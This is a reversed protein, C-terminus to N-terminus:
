RKIEQHRVPPNIPQEDQAEQQIPEVVGLPVGANAATESEAVLVVNPPDLRLLVPEAPAMVTPFHVENGGILDVGRTFPGALYVSVPEKRLNIAYLYAEGNHEVFRTKVGELPYRSANIARPVSPASDLDCAADLAHLYETPWDVGRILITRASTSLTEQRALGRPNYSIPKGQRITIGGGAIYADILTFAEDSVSPAEPLVLIKVDGLAGSVIDKETVFGVKFGFTHCGEYAHKVSELYPTGDEFIKSSLSWLIGVEPAASQFATVLPALRNLDLCARAYGELRQPRGLLTQSSGDPKGLPATSANLGAMAGEWALAYAAVGLVNAPATEGPIFSDWSNFVPADQDLSRLLTYNLSQSPYGLALYPHELSEMATCGSVDTFEAVSERNLGFASEGAEFARDSQNVQIAVAPAYRRALDSLGELFATGLQYQYLSLDHRYAPRDLNWNLVVEDFDLYFTGWVRNMIERDGYQNRAFTILGQRIPEGLFQMEPRDALALSVLSAEDSLAPVLTKAHRELISELRPHTVDYPFTGAGGEALAPWADYVWPAMADPALSITVGMGADEASHLLNMVEQPVTGAGSRQELTDVPGVRTEVINLGYRRLIPIAPALEYYDATAGFLFVPRGESTFMGDRIETNRVVPIPALLPEDKATRLSLDVRITDLLSQLFRTDDLARRWSGDAYASAAVPLYDHVIALRYGAYPAVSEAVAAVHSELERLDTELDQLLSEIHSGTIRRIRYTRSALEMDESRDVTLRAVYDGDPLGEPNWAISFPNEGTVVDLLVEGAYQPLGDEGEVVIRAAIKDFPEASMITGDWLVTAPLLFQNSVTAEVYAQPTRAAGLEEVWLKSTDSAAPSEQARAMFAACWPLCIAGLLLSIPLSRHM